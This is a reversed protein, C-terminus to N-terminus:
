GKSSFCITMFLLRFKILFQGILILLLFDIEVSGLSKLRWNQLLPSTRFPHLAKVFSTSLRSGLTILSLIAKLSLLLGGYIINMLLYALDSVKGKGICSPYLM